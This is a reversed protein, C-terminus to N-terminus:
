QSSVAALAPLLQRKLRAGREVLDFSGKDVAGAILNSAVEGTHGLNPTERSRISFCLSM